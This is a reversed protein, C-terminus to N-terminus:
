PDEATYEEELKTQGMPNSGMSPAKNTSPTETFQPEKPLPQGEKYKFGGTIKHKLRTWFSNMGEAIYNGYQVDHDVENLKKDIAVLKEGQRFLELNTNNGINKMDEVVAHTNRLREKIQQKRDALM